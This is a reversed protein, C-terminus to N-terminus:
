DIMSLADIMSISSLYTEENISLDEWHRKKKKYHLNGTQSDSQINSIVIVTRKNLRLAYRLLAGDERFIVTLLLYVILLLLLLLLLILLLPMLM